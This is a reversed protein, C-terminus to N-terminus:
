PGLVFFWNNSFVSTILDPIICNSVGLKNTSMHKMTYRRFHLVFHQAIPYIGNQITEGVEGRILLMDLSSIHLGHDRLSVFFACLDAQQLHTGTRSSLHCDERFLM